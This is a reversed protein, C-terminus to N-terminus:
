FQQFPSLNSFIKLVEKDLNEQLTAVQGEDHRVRASIIDEQIFKIKYEFDLYTAL